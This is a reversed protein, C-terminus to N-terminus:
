GTLRDEGLGSPIVAEDGGVAQQSIHGVGRNGVRLKVLRDDLQPLLQVRQEIRGTGKVIIRESRQAPQNAPQPGRQDGGTLVSSDGFPGFRSGLGRGGRGHRLRGGGTRELFAQKVEVEGFVRLQEGLKVRLRDVM